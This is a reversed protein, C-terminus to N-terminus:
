INPCVSSSGNTSKSCINSYPRTPPSPPHLLESSQFPWGCAHKLKGWPFSPLLQCPSLPWGFVLTLPALLGSITAMHSHHTGWHLECPPPFPCPPRWCWRGMPSICPILFTDRQSTASFSRESFLSTPNFWLSPPSFKFFFYMLSHASWAAIFPITFSSHPSPTHWPLLNCLVKSIFICFNILLWPQRTSHHFLKSLDLADLGLPAKPSPFVQGLATWSHGPLSARGTTSIWSQGEVMLWCQCTGHAHRHNAAILEFCRTRWPWDIQAISVPMGPPQVLISRSWPALM